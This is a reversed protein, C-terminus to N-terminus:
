DLKVTDIKVQRSFQWEDCPCALIVLIVTKHDTWHLIVCKDKLNFPSQKLISHAHWHLSGVTLRMSYLVIMLSVHQHNLCICSVPSLLNVIILMFLLLYSLYIFCRCYTWLQQPTHQKSISSLIRREVRWLNHTSISYIDQTHTPGQSKLELAFPDPLHIVPVSTQDICGAQAEGLWHVGHTPAM